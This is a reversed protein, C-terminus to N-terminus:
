RGKLIKFGLLELISSYKKPKKTEKIEVEVPMPKELKGEIM